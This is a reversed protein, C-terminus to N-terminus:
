RTGGRVGERALAQAALSRRLEDTADVVSRRVTSTLDGTALVRKSMELTAPAVMFRPYMLTALRGAVQAPRRRALTSLDSAYRDVYEGLVEDQGPQWLGDATLFLLRNSLVPDDLVARWAREKAAPDPRAAHCWATHEAGTATRDRSYEEDIGAAGLEGLVALRRLVAWRLETDLTVGRPLEDGALVRRLAPADATGSLWGRVAGLQRGDGIRAITACMAAVTEGAAARDAAPLYRPILADWAYGLLDEFMTVQVEAPLAAALLRVFYGPPVAADRVAEWAAGWLVARNLSDEIRPLLEPLPAWDALRVKTYTLDGDNVLVLDGPSVGAPVPIRGSHVTAALDLPVRATARGDSGYWGINLRHPRLVAGEQEVEIASGGPELRPTLTNIGSERWWRRAWDALDRGSASELSVLLDALTANGFAHAAFHARMGAMFMDDGLWAVLQRLTAAGKAYSIGDFNLMAEETDAVDGAVPHTSPRQDAACGWAKRAVAFSTWADRFRTVEAAVRHGLYEAFSENLWLDDWWRMTVLDGFWMHAMEHAIIVARLERQADSVASRFLLDDRYTVCGPNEMAGMSFEPVFAQDYKGFPYRLGFQEHYWDLCARTVEFIEDAERDLEVALSRRAYLSMPVGDHVIHKGHLEGAVVVFFYVALPETKAFLWRGPREVQGAGNAVVTWQPPATVSLTVPAKLDPQEFCAFVSCAEDLFVAAYLYASDDAPDVFRHLGQGTNTYSMTAEVVFENDAALDSLPFRRDALAAVDLSRGNLTVAALGRPALDVFTSAGPEARFRIAATAGFVEEGRTFDLDIQYEDVRVVQARREAEARTLMFGDQGM